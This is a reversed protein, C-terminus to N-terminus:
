TGYHVFNVWRELTVGRKRRLMRVADRLARASRECLPTGDEGEPSFLNGYFHASLDRGDTDAMEWMTGVVSRFGCYQMAATLHLAEDPNELDTLEATHCASLFAFEATPIRSRVIDLLTLREGDHLRFSAEFPKGTELNGHCAFHVLRHNQLGQIVAARTADESVLETVPIGVDRIVELEGEVGELYADPQGVMLLSPSLHSIQAVPTRSSILAGLTPTYSSVYLDSFYRKKKDDSPIPGMAHLPLSCFVSTPCWWIRSQRPIRLERLRDIVPQGVLEHLGELVSRLARNYDKSGLGYEKRAELLRTSLTIARQYFNRSTPILSPPADRLVIVIDCRWSCHNIIIIPGNSAANRLTYFPVAKFFNQFGPLAQIKSIIAEREQLLKRQEKLTRSFPDAEDEEQAANPGTETDEHILTSTTVIELAKSVALFEDALTSDVTRLQDVSTRLGRMESWLLARGQELTEVALELEGREIQYSAYDLSIKMADGLKGVINHQTQVTPGVALSSQLVSLANQYALSTSPHGFNRAIYAWIYAIRIRDSATSYDDDFAAKLMSISENLNELRGLEFCRLSLAFGLTRFLEFRPAHQPQLELASRCIDISKDLVEERGSQMFVALLDTAMEITERAANPVSPLIMQRYKIAQELDTPDNSQFYKVLYIFRSQLLAYRRNDDGPQTSALLEHSRRLEEELGARSSEAHILSLVVGAPGYDSDRLFQLNESQSLSYAEKAYSEAETLYEEHGSYEYRDRLSSALIFLVVHRYPSGLPLCNLIPRFTSIMEEVGDPTHFRASQSTALLWITTQALSRLHHESPILPLNENFLAMIEEHGNHLGAYFSHWGLVFALLVSLEPLDKPQCVKRGERIYEVVQEFRESKGTRILRFVILWALKFLVLATFEESPEWPLCCLYLTLVEEIIERHCASDLEAKYCLAVAFEASVNSFQLGAKKLPLYLLHRFCHIGCELDSPQWTHAFRRVLSCSLLYLAGVTNFYV